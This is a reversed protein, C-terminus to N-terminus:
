MEAIPRVIALILSTTLQQRCGGFSVATAVMRASVLLIPVNWALDLFKFGYGPPQAAINHLRNVSGTAAM